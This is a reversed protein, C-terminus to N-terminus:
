SKPLAGKVIEGADEAYSKGLEAIARANVEASNAIDKAAEAQASIYSRMGEIDKIAAASKLAEVSANASEEISKLQIATLKEINSVALTSLEQIPAVLKEIQENM